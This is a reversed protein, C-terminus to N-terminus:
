CDFQTRLQELLNDEDAVMKAECAQFHVVTQRYYRELYLVTLPRSATAELMESGLQRSHASSHDQFRIGCPQYGAQVILLVHIAPM